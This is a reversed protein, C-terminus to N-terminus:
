KSCINNVTLAGNLNHEEFTGDNCVYYSTNTVSLGYGGNCSHPKVYTGHAVHKKSYNDFVEYEKGSNESYEWTSVNTNTPLTSGNCNKRCTNTSNINSLKWIGDSSSCYFITPRSSSVDTSYETNCTHIAYYSDLKAYKNSYDDKELSSLTVVEDYNGDNNDDVPKGSSTTRVIASANSTLGHGDSVNVASLDSFKCSKRCAYNGGSVVFSGNKCTYVADRYPSKSYSDKCVSPILKYGSQVVDTLRKGDTGVPLDKYSKSDIDYYKWSETAAATAINDINCKLACVNGDNVNKWSGNSQCQYRAKENSGYSIEYGDNCGYVGVQDDTSYFIEKNIVGECDKTSNTSNTSDTSNASNTSSTNDTSSTCGGIKSISYGSINNINCVKSCLNGEKEVTWAGGNGCRLQLPNDKNTTLMYDGKCVDIEIVDDFYFLTENTTTCTGNVCKKWSALTNYYSTRKLDCKPKCSGQIDFNGSTDCTIVVGNDNLKNSADYEYYDSKCSASFTTGQSYYTADALYGSNEDMAITDFYYKSYLKKLESYSCAKNCIGDSKNVGGVVKTFSFLRGSCTYMLYANKNKKLYGDQCTYLTVIPNTKDTIKTDNTVNVNCSSINSSDTCVKWGQGSAYEGIDYLYCDGSNYITNSDISKSNDFTACSYTNGSIVNALEVSGFVLSIALCFKFIGKWDKMRGSIFMFGTAVVFGAMVTRGFTGTILNFVFCMGAIIGNNGIDNVQDNTLSDVATALSQSITIMYSILLYLLRRSKKSNIYMKIHPRLYM